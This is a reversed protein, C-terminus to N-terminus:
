DEEDPEVPSGAAIWISRLRTSEEDALEEDTWAGCERLARALSAHGIADLQAAIEPQEVWHRAASECDGPATLDAICDAPLDIETGYTGDITCYAM